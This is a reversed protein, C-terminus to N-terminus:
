KVVVNTSGSSIITLTKWLIVTNLIMISFGHDLLLIIEAALCLVEDDLLAESEYKAYVLSV